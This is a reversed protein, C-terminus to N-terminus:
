RECLSFVPLQPRHRESKLQTSMAQPMLLKAKSPFDEMMKTAEKLKKLNIMWIILMLPHSMM